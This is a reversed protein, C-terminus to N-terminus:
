TQLAIRDDTIGDGVAGFQEDYFAGGFPLAKLLVGGATEVHADVAASEAVEYRYGGAEIIDGPGVEILGSGPTYSMTEDALLDAVTAFKIKDASLMASYSQARDAADEAAEAAAEAGALIGASSLDTVLRFEDGSKFGWVIMGSALA